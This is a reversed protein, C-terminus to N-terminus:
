CKVGKIRLLYDAALATGSGPLYGQRSLTELDSALIRCPSPSVRALTSRHAGIVGFSPCKLCGGHWYHFRWAEMMLSAHSSSEM